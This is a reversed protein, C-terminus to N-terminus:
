LAQFTNPAITKLQALAKTAFRVAEESAAGPRRTLVAVDRWSSMSGSILM